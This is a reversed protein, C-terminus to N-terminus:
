REFEDKSFELHKRGLIEDRTFEIIKKNAMCRWNQMNSIYQKNKMKFVDSIFAAVNEGLEKDRASTFIFAEIKSERMETGLQQSYEYSSKNSIKEQHKKFPPKTLNIGKETHIYAKFATM